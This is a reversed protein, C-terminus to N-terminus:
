GLKTIKLKAEKELPFVPRNIHCFPFSSFDPNTVGPGAIRVVHRAIPEFAARFHQRSKLLTYKRNSPDLGVHTFVAVDLAEIRQETILIDIDNLSLVSMLGISVTLGRFMPGTATIRGDVVARIRGTVSLPVSKYGLRPAQIKGGLDLTIDQGVGAKIMKYVADPDHFPGAIMDTFGMAMAKKLVSTDQAFGGSAPIDGSDAMIVPGEPLKLANELTIEYPEITEVLDHRVQWLSDLVQNAVAAAADPANDTTVTLCMGGPAADTFPHGCSLDINLVKDKKELNLIQNWIQDLPSDKPDMRELSAMLPIRYVCTVPRTKKEIMDLLLGAARIGTDYMDVHPLTRYLTIIDAAQAISDTLTAHFDFVVGIRINPALKRIRALLEGEGDAISQTVMSGHLDLLVGDCGTAVADLIQKCFWEFAEDEVPGSPMAEGMVPVLVEIKRKELFDVFAALATNQGRCGVKAEKGSPPQEGAFTFSGLPTTENVFSHTEHKMQAAVIKM